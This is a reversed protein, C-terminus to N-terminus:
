NKLIKLQKTFKFYDSNSCRRKLNCDLCSIVVNNQTHGVMNNMRELTWQDKQRVNSYLVLVKKKCYYCTLQSSVLMELTQDMTIFEDTLRKKKIDQQRYSCIKKQIERWYDKEVGEKEGLFLKNVAQVQLQHETEIFDIQREEQKKTITIKKM